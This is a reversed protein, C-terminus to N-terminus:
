ESDTEYFPTEDFVADDEPDPQENDTVSESIPSTTEEKVTTTAVPQETTTSITEKLEEIRKANKKEENAMIKNIRIDELENKYAILVSKFNDKNLKVIVDNQKVLSVTAYSSLCCAIESATLKKKIRSYRQIIPFITAIPYNKTEVICMYKTVNNITSM